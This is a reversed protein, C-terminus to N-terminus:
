EFGLEQATISIKKTSSQNWEFYELPSIADKTPYFLGVAKSGDELDKIM